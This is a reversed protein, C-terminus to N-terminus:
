DTENEESEQMENMSEYIICIQNFRVLSRYRKLEEKEARGSCLYSFLNIGPSYDVMGFRIRLM